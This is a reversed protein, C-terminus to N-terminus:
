RQVMATLKAQGLTHGNLADHVSAYAAGTELTVYGDQAFVVFAVHHPAQGADPCDGLYGVTQNDNLGQQAGNSLLPRTPVGAPLQTLSSPMNYLLWLTFPQSTSSTRDMDQAVLAYAATGPPAGSWTLPPSQGSGDCTYAAPLQGGDSFATSQLSFPAAAVPSQGPLVSASPSAVARAIPLSPTPGVPTARVPTSPTPTSAQDPATPSATCGLVFSLPLSLAAALWRRM